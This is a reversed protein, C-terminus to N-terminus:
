KLSAQAMERALGSVEEEVRGAADQRLMAQWAGRARDELGQGGALLALHSEQLLAFGLRWVRVFEALVGEHWKADDKLVVCLKWKIPSSPDLRKVVVDVGGALGRRIRAVPEGIVLKEYQPLVPAEFFGVGDFVAPNDKYLTAWLQWLREQNRSMCEGVPKQYEWVDLGPHILISKDTLEKRYADTAGREKAKVKAGLKLLQRFDANKEELYKQQGRMMEIPFPAELGVLRRWLILDVRFGFYAESVVQEGRQAASGLDPRKVGGYALIFERRASEAAAMDKAKAAVKKEEESQMRRMEQVAADDGEVIKPAM